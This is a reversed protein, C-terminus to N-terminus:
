GALTSRRATTPRSSRTPMATAIAQRRAATSARTRSPEDNASPNWIETQSTPQTQRSSLREGSCRGRRHPAAGTSGAPPSSRGSSRGPIYSAADPVGTLELRARGAQPGASRGEEPKPMAGLYAAWAPTRATPADKPRRAHSSITRRPAPLHFTAAVAVGEGSTCHTRATWRPFLWTGRCLARRCRLM